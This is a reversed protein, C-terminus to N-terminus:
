PSPEAPRPTLRVPVGDDRNRLAAWIRDAIGYKRAMAAAVRERLEPDDDIVEALVPVPIEGAHLGAGLTAAPTARLEALWDADPNGARLYRSGEIEVLWLQVPHGHGERDIVNLTVVEGEPVALAALVLLGCLSAVGIMAARM